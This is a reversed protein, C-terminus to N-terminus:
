GSFYRGTTQQHIFEDYTARLEPSKGSVSLTDNFIHYYSAFLEKDASYQFRWSNRPIRSIVQNFLFNNITKVLATAVALSIQLAEYTLELPKELLEKHKDLGLAIANNAGLKGFRHVACHRLHCIQAFDSIVIDVEPPFKGKIGILDRIADTINKESTFSYKELIAEPLMDKTLHLAAAYSIERQHASQNSVPDIHILRRLVTRFYSEVAAIAGLLLLQGQLTTYGNLPKNPTTPSSSLTLRNLAALRLLFEDIPSNKSEQHQSDFLLSTDLPPASAAVSM